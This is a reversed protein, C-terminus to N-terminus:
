EDLKVGLLEQLRPLDNKLPTTEDGRSETLLKGSLFDTLIRVDDADAKEINRVKEGKYSIHLILKPSVINPSCKRCFQSEDFMVANGAIKRLAEIRRRCSPIEWQVSEVVNVDCRREATSKKVDYLTREGCKPCLYGAHDPPLAPTYCMAGRVTGKPPPTDALRKLLARVAVRDLSKVGEVTVIPPPPPPSTARSCGSGAFLLCALVLVAAVIGVLMGM